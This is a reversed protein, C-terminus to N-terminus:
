KYKSVKVYKYGDKVTNHVNLLYNFAFSGLSGVHAFLAITSM